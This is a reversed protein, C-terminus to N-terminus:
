IEQAELFIAQSLKEFFEQYMKPDRLCERKTCQGQTNWVMRQFTVRVAIHSREEGVPNTVVCARMKQNKDTPMPVGFLVAFIVAGVVQATEVASRDKSGVIIGLDTESEDINFGLDQLLAASSALIKSEDNTEFRRTQMQRYQLTEPTFVLADKPIQPQCAILTILVLLTASLAKLSKNIM